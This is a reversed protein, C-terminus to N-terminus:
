IYFQSLTVECGTFGKRTDTRHTPQLALEGPRTTLYRSVPKPDKTNQNVRWGQDQHHDRHDSGNINMRSRTPQVILESRRDEPGKINQGKRGEM